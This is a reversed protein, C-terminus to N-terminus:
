IDYVLVQTKFNYNCWILLHIYNIGCQIILNQWTDRKKELHMAGSM